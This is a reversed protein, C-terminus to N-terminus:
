PLIGVELIREKIETGIPAEETWSRSIGIRAPHTFFMPVTETYRISDRPEFTNSNFNPLIM